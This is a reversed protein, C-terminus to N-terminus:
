VPKLIDNMLDKIVYGNPNLIYGGQTFFVKMLVIGDICGPTFGIGKDENRKDRNMFQKFPLGM